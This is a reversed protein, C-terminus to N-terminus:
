RDVAVVGQAQALTPQWGYPSHDGGLVDLLKRGTLESDMTSRGTIFPYDVIVSVEKGVNGHFLGGPQVAWELIMQLPLTPFDTVLYKSHERDWFASGEQYDYARPHGTVHKGSVISRKDDDSVNTFALCPVGYCEAAIPKGLEYFCRILDKVRYNNVMDLLPGSGGVILLADYKKGIERKRDELQRFYEERERNYNSSSLLPNKPFWTSLNIPSNLVSGEATEPNDILKVAEAMAKAVVTRGLPPDISETDYSAPLAIPRQGKPTTFDFSCKAKKFVELPAVLEEGWYGWESLLILLRYM